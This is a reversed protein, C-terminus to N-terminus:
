LLAKEIESIILEPRPLYDNNPNHPKSLTDRLTQWIKQKDTTIVGLRNEEIFKANAEEQGPIPNIVVIPKNAVYCETTTIGGPKTIIIDATFIYKHIENTWGLPNIKVNKGTPKILELKKRLKENKGAVATITINSGQKALIEVIEDISALGDGGSMILINKQGDQAKGPNQHAQKKMEFFISDIPIGSLIINKEDVGYDILTARADPSAVFYKTIGLAGWYPHLGYDTTIVFLPIHNLKQKNVNVLDLALPHTCAILDPSFKILAKILKRSAIIEALKLFIKGRRIFKKNSTKEYIFQWWRTAKKSMTNYSDIILHRIIGPLFDAIDFHVTEWDPHANKIHKILANGARIHGAGASASIVLIKM